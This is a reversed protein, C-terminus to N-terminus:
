APRVHDALLDIAVELEELGHADSSTKDGQSGFHPMEIAEAGRGTKIVASTLLTVAEKIEGPLASLVANVSKGSALAATLPVVTPAATVTPVFSSAITVLETNGGDILTLTMGPFIGLPNAVTLSMAGAAAAATVGTNAFGNVYTLSAFRYGRAAHGYCDSIRAGGSAPLTVVKLGLELVSLDPLQITSAPSDGVSAAAVAVLPTFDVPVRLAGDRHIRYRGAQTDLTAALIKKCITDAWASGRVVAQALAATQQSPSGGPILNSTDVGTPANLYEAPTLYPIRTAYTSVTPAFVPGGVPVVGTPGFVTSANGGDIVPSSM